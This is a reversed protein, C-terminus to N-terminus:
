LLEGPNRIFKMVNQEGKLEGVNETTDAYLLRKYPDFELLLQKFFWQSIPDDIWRQLEEKDEPERVM